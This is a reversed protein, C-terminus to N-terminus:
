IDFPCDTSWNQRGPHEITPRPGDIDVGLFNLTGPEADITQYDTGWLVRKLRRVAERPSRAVVEVREEMRGGTGKYTRTYSFHYENM